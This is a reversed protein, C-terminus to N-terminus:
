EFEFKVVEWNLSDHMVVMRKDNPHPHNFVSKYYFYVLICTDGNSNVMKSQNLDEIYYTYMSEDVPVKTTDQVNEGSIIKYKRIFVPMREPLYDYGNTDAIAVIYENTSVGDVFTRFPRIVDGNPLTEYAGFDIKIEYGSHRGSEKPTVNFGKSEMCRNKPFGDPYYEEFPGELNPSSTDIICGRNMLNGNTYYSIIIVSDSWVSKIRESFLLGTDEYYYTSKHQCGFMTLMVCGFCLMNIMTYFTKMM